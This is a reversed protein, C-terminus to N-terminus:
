SNESIWKLCHDKSGWCRLSEGMGVVYHSTEDVWLQLNGFSELLKAKKGHLM